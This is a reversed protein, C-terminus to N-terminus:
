TVAENTKMVGVMMPVDEHGIKTTSSNDITNKKHSITKLGFAVGVHECPAM